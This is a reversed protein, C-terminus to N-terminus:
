RAIGIQSDTDTGSCSNKGNSVLVTDDLLFWENRKLSEADAIGLWGVCSISGARM